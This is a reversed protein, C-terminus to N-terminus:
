KKKNSNLGNIVAIFDGFLKFILSVYIYTSINKNCNNERNITGWFVIAGLIDWIINFIGTITLTSYIFCILM